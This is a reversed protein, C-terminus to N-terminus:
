RIRQAIVAAIEIAPGCVDTDPVPQQPAYETQFLGGSAVQVWIMCNRYGSDRHRDILFASSGAIDLTRFNVEHRKSDALTTYRDWPNPAFYLRVGELDATPPTWHCYGLGFDLEPEGPGSLGARALDAPGLVVCPHNVLEALRWPPTTPPPTDRGLVTQPPATTAAGPVDCSAATVFASGLLVAFLTRIRSTGNTKM